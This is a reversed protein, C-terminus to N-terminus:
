KLLLNNFIAGGGFKQNPQISYINTPLKNFKTRMQRKNWYSRCHLTFGVMALTLLLILVVTIVKHLWILFIFNNLIFEFLKCLPNYPVTNSREHYGAYVHAQGLTHGLDETTNVEHTSGVFSTMALQMICCLHTQWLKSIPAAPLPTPKTLPKCAACSVNDAKTQQNPWQFYCCGWHRNHHLQNWFRHRFTASAKSRKTQPKTKTSYFLNCYTNIGHIIKNSNCCRQNRNSKLM